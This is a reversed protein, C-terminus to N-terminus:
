DPNKKPRGRPRKPNREESDKKPLGRKKPISKASPASLGLAELEDFVHLPAHVWYGDCSSPPEPAGKVRWALSLDDMLEGFSMDALLGASMAKRLVRCTAVTSIFNIFEAGILSFDGMENTEGLCEDNKYRAFILELKWRDDNLLFVTKGPLDQDCDFVIVGFAYKKKAYEAPDFNHQKEANALYEAEEAAARKTDRFSYLFGGGGISRKKFVIQRDIIGELVGEFALMSNEAIRKDNRKIPTLFRSEPNEKRLGKIASPPFIKDAVIIGKRINNDRIFTPYSSADISDGPFIRACIPEMLEIDYAYLVSIEKYGEIRAKDSFASLDNVASSDLKLTGDIAVHHDEAVMEVRKQYFQKRKDGDQGLRRLFARIANPSLIAGPYDVSVSVRKYHTSVRGTTISPRIIRLTAISIITYADRAPYIALLDSLIDRTVSRVLAASGYSLTEPASAATKEVKPVFKFGIIHGIVRGNSPRPNGGPVFKVGARERVAYRFPGDRGSDDVITNVPREVRRVSEPVAM